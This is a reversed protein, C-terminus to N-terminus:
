IRFETTKEFFKLADSETILKIAKEYNDYLSDLTRSQWKRLFHKMKNWALEIPNLEPHYPPLFILKAGKKEILNQVEENKHISANDIIVYDGDKLLPYLFHTLFYIFVHSNTTGEVNMATVIGKTTMAGILSVRRGSSVPKTDYVREDSAARGYNLILNM